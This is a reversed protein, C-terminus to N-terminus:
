ANEDFFRGAREPLGSQANLGYRIRYRSWRDAAGDARCVTHYRRFSNHDRPPTAPVEAEVEAAMYVIITSGVEVM